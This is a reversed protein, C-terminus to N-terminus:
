KGGYTTRRKKKPQDYIRGNEGGRRSRKSPNERKRKSMKTGKLTRVVALGPFSGEGGEVVRKKKKGWFVLLSKTKREPIDSLELREKEVGCVM